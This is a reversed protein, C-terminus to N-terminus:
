SKIFSYLLNEYKKFIESFQNKLISNKMKKSDFDNTLTKLIKKKLDSVDELKVLYGNYGNKIIESPGSKCDFAVVPTNLAISEVLVNPYGEYISTLLTIKAYLYHSIMNKQFGLFDIRNEVHCEKAKQKLNKELSGKGVIKLRLTPFYQSLDAFAEIAYHFAKQKELRGVCLIYDNKKIKNLDNKKVFNSIQSQLPNYIVCSKNLLKPFESILDNRMDNCQNIVYDVKSYNSKILNKVVYKTWFNQNKYHIMKMSFTNINRSIIKLKLRFLSRLIVLITALEYNFVLITKVNNRYIYKILSLPSYIARDVNLLILNVGSSIRNYYFGDGLNLIVLDVNWGKASFSNAIEVCVGEAGGGSLSSILFTIKKKENM